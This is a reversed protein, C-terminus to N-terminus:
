RQPTSFDVFPTKIGTNLFVPLWPVNVLDVLPERRLTTYTEVVIAYLCRLLM